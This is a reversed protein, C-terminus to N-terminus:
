LGQLEQEIFASFQEVRERAQTGYHFLESPFLTEAEGRLLAEGQALSDILAGRMQAYQLMLTNCPIVDSPRMEQDANLMYGSVKLIVDEMRELWRNVASAYDYYPQFATKKSIARSSFLGHSLEEPFFELYSRHISSFESAVDRMELCLEKFSPASSANQFM